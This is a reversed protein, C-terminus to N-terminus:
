TKCADIIIFIVQDLPMLGSQLLLFIVSSIQDVGLICIDLRYKQCVLAARLNSFSDKLNGLSLAVGLNITSIPNNM